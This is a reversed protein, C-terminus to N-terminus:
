EAYPAELEFLTEQADGDRLPDCAAGAPTESSADAALRRHEAMVWEPWTLWLTGDPDRRM